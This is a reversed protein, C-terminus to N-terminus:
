LNNTANPMARFPRPVDRLGPDNLAVALAVAAGGAPGDAVAVAARAVMRRARAARLAPVALAASLVLLAVDAAAARSGYAPAVAPGLRLLM